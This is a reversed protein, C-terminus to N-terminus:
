FYHIQSNIIDSIEIKLMSKIFDRTRFIVLYPSYVETALSLLPPSLCIGLFLLLSGEEGPITSVYGGRVSISFCLLFKEECVEFDLTELNASGHGPGEDELSRAYVTHHLSIGRASSSFCIKAESSPTIIKRGQILASIIILSRAYEKIVSSTRTERADEFCHSEESICNSSM